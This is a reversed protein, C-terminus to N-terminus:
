NNVILSLSVASKGEFEETDPNYANIYATAGHTGAALETDLKATDIHRDPLVAGSDYIKEGTEDLYIEVVFPYVNHNPNEIRLTGASSGDEFVPQANIKFSFMTEDAAKQMQQKIEEDTMDPLHGQAAEGAGPLIDGSVLRAPQNSSLLGSIVLILTLTVALLILWIVTKKEKKKQRARKKTDLRSSIANM